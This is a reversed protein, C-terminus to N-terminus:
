RQTGRRLTSVAHDFERKRAEFESEPARGLACLLFRGLPIAVFTERMAVSDEGTASKTVQRWL